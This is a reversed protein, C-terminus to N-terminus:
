CLRKVVVARVLFDMDLIYINFLYNIKDDLNINNKQNKFFINMLIVIDLLKKVILSFSTYQINPSKSQSSFGM